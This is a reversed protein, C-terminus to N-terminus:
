LIIGTSKKCLNVVYEQYDSGATNTVDYLVYRWGGLVFMAQVLTVVIWLDSSDHRKLTKKEKAIILLPLLSGAFYEEKKLSRTSLM